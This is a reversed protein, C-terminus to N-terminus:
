RPCPRMRDQATSDMLEVVPRPRVLPLFAGGSEIRLWAAGEAGAAPGDGQRCGTLSLALSGSTAIDDAEKWRRILAQKRAAACPGGPRHPSRGGARM